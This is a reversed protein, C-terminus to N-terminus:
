PDRQTEEAVALNGYGVPIAQRGCIGVVDFLWTFKSLFVVWLVSVSGFPM